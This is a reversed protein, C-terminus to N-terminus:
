ILGTLGALAGALILVGYTHAIAAIGREPRLWVIVTAVVVSIGLASALAVRGNLIAYPAAPLVCALAGAAGCLVAVRWGSEPDSIHQGATMGVLEGAAGGLAAHWIAHTSQHAVILGLTIGLFMVLGDVSGFVALRTRTQEPHEGDPM